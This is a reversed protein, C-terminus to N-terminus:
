ILRRSLEERLFLAVGDEDCGSIVADAIEIIEPVANRPAYKRDAIDFMSRDNYNDGFVVLEDYDFMEKLQLLAAKKSAKEHFIEICYLGNYVNLYTAASIGEIKNLEEAIPMVEEERGTYAMYVTRHGSIRTMIDKVLLVERCRKLAQKSYYQTQNQLDENEYYIHLQEEWLSYVFCSTGYNHFVELVRYVTEAPIVETVRYVKREFDYLFVGNAAIGPLTLNLQELRYDCGYPMRATAITFNIGEKICHNILETSKPTILKESNFLTGDLDSVYLTKM